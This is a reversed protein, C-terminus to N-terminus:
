IKLGNSHALGIHLMSGKKERVPRSLPPTVITVPINSGGSGVFYEEDDEEYLGDLEMQVQKFLEDTFDKTTSRNHEHNINRRPTPISLQSQSM